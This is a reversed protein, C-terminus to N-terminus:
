CLKTTKYVPIRKAWDLLYPDNQRKRQAAYDVSWHLRDGNEHVDIWGEVEIMAPMNWPNNIGYIRSIVKLM